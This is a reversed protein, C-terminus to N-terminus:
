LINSNLGWSSISVQILIQPRQTEPLFLHSTRDTSSYFPRYGQNYFAAPVSTARTPPADPSGLLPARFLNLQDEM